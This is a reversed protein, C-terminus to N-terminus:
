DLTIDHTTEGSRVQYELPSELMTSYTMPIQVYRKSTDENDPPKYNSPNDQGPPPQYKPPVFAKQGIGTAGRRLSETEVTIKVKGTPCNEMRYTGDEAIRTSPSVKGELSNFVVNGGKLPAGRYTVKGTVTVKGMGGCGAAALVPALALFAWKVLGLRPARQM